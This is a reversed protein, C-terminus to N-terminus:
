KQKSLAELAAVGAATDIGHPSANTAESLALAVGPLGAALRLRALLLYDNALGAFRGLFQLQRREAEAALVPDRSAFARNAAAQAYLRAYEADLPMLRAARRALQQATEDDHRADAKGARYALSDAAVVMAALVLAACGGVVPTGIAARRASRGASVEPLPGRATVGVVSGALVVFVASTGISLPNIAATALFGALAGAVFPMAPVDGRVMAGRARAAILAALLVIAALAVPGATTLVEIVASHPSGVLPDVGSGTSEDFPYGLDAPQHRGFEVLLGDPGLGFLPHAGYAALSGKWITERTGLGQSSNRDFAEATRKALPALEGSAGATIIGVLLIAGVTIAFRRQEAVPWHAVRCGGLVVLGAILLGGLGSRSGSLAVLSVIVALVGAAKWDIHRQQISSLGGAFGVALVAFAALDNPNGLTSFSRDWNEAWTFPDAGLAQVFAYVAVAGLVSLGFRLLHTLTAQSRVSVAALTGGALLCVWTILGFRYGVNGLISNRRDISAMWSLALALCLCALGVFWPSRWDMRASRLSLSGLAAVGFTFLLAVRPIAFPDFTWPLFVLPLVLYGLLM